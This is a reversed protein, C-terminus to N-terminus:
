LARVRDRIRELLGLPIEPVHTCALHGATILDAILVRAVGLPVGIRVAIEAVSRPVQCIEAVTRSEFTLPAALAAPEAQVVTELRLDTCLPHTRGQTVMFPRIFGEDLPIQRPLRSPLSTEKRDRPQQPAEWAPIMRRDPLRPDDSTM